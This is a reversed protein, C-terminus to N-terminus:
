ALTVKFAADAAGHGRLRQWWAAPAIMLNYGIWYKRRIAANVRTATAADVVEATGHYRTAGDAVKGRVGCVAVTVAPNRGVRKVKYSDHGTTFAYGGEFPVVWVPTAVTSGDRKSSIFSIYKAGDLEHTMHTVTGGFVRLTLVHVSATGDEVEGHHVGALRRGIRKAGGGFEDPVGIRETVLSEPHGLVM